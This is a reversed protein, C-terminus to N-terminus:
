EMLVLYLECTDAACRHSYELDAIESVAVEM